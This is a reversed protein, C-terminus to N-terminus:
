GAETAAAPESEGTGPADPGAAPAEEAVREFVYGGQEAGWVQRGDRDFGRDWSTLGDATVTVESTAYAAGRLTSTCLSGLTSGVFADGRRRLLIACGERQQLDDPSLGELLSPDRWAGVVAAPDPLEYVQSEYLNPAIETVHYVRQRYPREAYEAVAQEVYLWYGEARDVQLPSMHLRIDRFDGDAAAQAASSFSGSMWDVLTALGRDLYGARQLTFSWPGSVLGITDAGPDTTAVAVVEGRERLELRLSRSGDGSRRFCSLRVVFRGAELDDMPEMPLAVESGQDHWLYDVGTLSTGDARRYRFQGDYFTCRRMPIPAPAPAAEAAARPTVVLQERDLRATAGFVEGLWAGACADGRLEGQFAAGARHWLVVCQGAFPEAAVTADPAAAPAPPRLVFGDFEPEAVLEVRGLEHDHWSGDWTRLRVEATWPGDGDPAPAQISLHLRPIAGDAGATQWAETSDFHGGLWQALDVLDDGASGQAHAGVALAITLLALLGIRTRQM